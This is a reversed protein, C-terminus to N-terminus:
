NTRLSRIPIAYILARCNKVVPESRTASRIDRQEDPSREAVEQPASSWQNSEGTRRGPSADGFITQMADILRRIHPPQQQYTDDGGESSAASPSNSVRKGFVM